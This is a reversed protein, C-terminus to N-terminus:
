FLGQLYGWVPGKHISVDVHTGPKFPNLNGQIPKLYVSTLAPDQMITPSLGYRETQAMPRIDVVRAAVRGGHDGLAMQAADGVQIREAVSAPLRAEVVLAEPNDEQLRILIAGANVWAKNSQVLVIQCDCPSTITLGAFRDKLFARQRILNDHQALKEAIEQDLGKPTEGTPADLSATVMQHETTAQDLAAQAEDVITKTKTVEAQLTDWKISSLYGKKHLPALRQRQSQAQAYDAQALRLREEKQRLRNQASQQRYSLRLVADRKKERLGEIQTKLFSLDNDLTTKADQLKPSVITGLVQGQRLHDASTIQTTWIVQGSEPATLMRLPVTVAAFPADAYIRFFTQWLGWIMGVLLVTMLCALVAYGRYKRHLFHESLTETELFGTKEFTNAAVVPWKRFTLPSRLLADLAEQQAADQWLITGVYKQQRRTVVQVIGQLTVQQGGCVVVVVVPAEMSLPHDFGGVLRDKSLHYVEGARQDLFVQPKPMAM